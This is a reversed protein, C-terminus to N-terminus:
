PGQERLLKGLARPHAPQPAFSRSYRALDAAHRGLDGLQPAIGGAVLNGSKLQLRRSLTDVLIQRRQALEIEHYQLNRL